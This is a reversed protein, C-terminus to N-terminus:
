EGAFVEPGLISASLTHNRGSASSAVLLTQRFSRIDTDNVPYTRGVTTIRSNGPHASGIRVPPPRVTPSGLSIKVLISTGFSRLAIATGSPRRPPSTRKMSSTSEDASAIFGMKCRIVAFSSILRPANSRRLRASLMRIADSSIGAPGNNGHLRGPSSRGAHHQPREHLLIGPEFPQQRARHEVVRAKLIQQEFFRSARRSAPLPRADESLASSSRAAPTYQGRHPDCSCATDRTDPLHHRGATANARIPAAVNDTRSDVAACGQQAPDVERDGALVNLPEVAFFRAAPAGAGDVTSASGLWHQLRSEDM